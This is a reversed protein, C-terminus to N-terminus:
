TLLMIIESFRNEAFNNSLKPTLDQCYEPPITPRKTAGETTCGNIEQDHAQNGSLSFLFLLFM